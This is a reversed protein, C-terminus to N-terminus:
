IACRADEIGRIRVATGRNRSRKEARARFGIESALAASVPEILSRKEAGARFRIESAL